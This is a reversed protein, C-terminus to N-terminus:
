HNLFSLLYLFTKYNETCTPVQNYSFEGLFDASAPNFGASAAAAIHGLHLTPHHLVPRHPSSPKPRPALISDITFLSGASTSPISGPTTRTKYVPKFGEGLFMNGLFNQSAFVTSASASTGRPNPQSSTEVM